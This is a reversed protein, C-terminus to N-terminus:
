LPSQDTRLKRVRNIAREFHQCADWLENTLEAAPDAELMMKAVLAASAIMEATAQDRAPDSSNV